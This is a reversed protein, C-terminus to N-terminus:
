LFLSKMVAAVDKPLEEGDYYLDLYRPKHPLSDFHNRVQKTLMSIESLKHVVLNSNVLYVRAAGFIENATVIYFFIV